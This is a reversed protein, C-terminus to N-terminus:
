LDHERFHSKNFRMIIIVGVVLVIPVAGMLFSYGWFVSSFGADISFIHTDEGQAMRTMLDESNLRGGRHVLFNGFAYIIVPYILLLLSYLRHVKKLVLKYILLAPVALLIAVGIVILIYIGIILVAWM